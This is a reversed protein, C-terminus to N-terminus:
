QEQKRRALAAEKRANIHAIKQKYSMKLFNKGNNGGDNNSENQNQYFSGQSPAPTAPKTETLGFMKKFGEPSKKALRDVESIDMGLEAAKDAVKAKYNTGYVEEAIRMSTDMNRAEVDKRQQESLVQVAGEAAKAVLEDTSVQPTEGTNPVANIKELVEDVRNGAAVKAELEAIYRDKIAAESELTSIHSDANQIKKVVEDSSNFTREGVQLFTKDADPKAPNSNDGTPDGDTAFTM